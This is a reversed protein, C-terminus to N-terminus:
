SDPASKKDLHEALEKSLKFVLKCGPCQIRHGIRDARFHLKRECDPCRFTLSKADTGASGWSSLVKRRLTLVAVLGVIGLIIWKAM